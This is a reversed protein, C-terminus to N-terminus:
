AEYEPFNLESHKRYDDNGIIQQALGYNLEQGPNEQQWKSLKEGNAEVYDRINKLDRAGSVHPKMFPYNKYRIRYGMGFPDTSITSHKYNGNDLAENLGSLVKSIAEDLRDMDTNEYIHNNQWAADGVDDSQFAPAGKPTNTKRRAWGRKRHELKVLWKVEDNGSNFVNQLEDNNMESILKGNFKAYKPTLIGHIGKIPFKRHLRYYTVNLLAAQKDTFPFTDLNCALWVCYEPDMKIIKVKDQGKYRGYSFNAKDVIGEEVSENLSGGKRFFYETASHVLVLYDDTEVTDDAYPNPFQLALADYLRPYYQKVMEVLKEYPYPRAGKMRRNWEEIDIDACCGDYEIPADNEWDEYEEEDYEVSENLDIKKKMHKGFTKGVGEKKQEETWSRFLINGKLYAESELEILKEDETIKEGTYGVLRGELNQNHHVNEHAASRLVDKILRNHTFLTVTKNQPDYFATKGFLPDQNATSIKYKPFPRLKVGHSDM